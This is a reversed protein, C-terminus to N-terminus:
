VACSRRFPPGLGCGTDCAERSLYEESQDRLFRPTSAGFFSIVQPISAAVMRANEQHSCRELLVCHRNVFSSLFARVPMVVKSHTANTVSAYNGLRPCFPFCFLCL